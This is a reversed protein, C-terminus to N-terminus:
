PISRYLRLFTPRFGRRPWFRSSLLNTVRWDTVMARYGHEHAWAFVADTLAVGAGTGRAEPLTSAFSLYSAKDPRSVGGHDSSLELSCVQFLSVARGGVDAVFTGIEEDALDEKWWNLVDEESPPQLGSFVPSLNQHRQLSPGIVTAVDLEDPGPMRVTVGAPQEAAATDGVERVGEAQQAGFGVRFWADLLVGDAAPVQAYHRTRGEEVWRAAAAGYLDRVDEAEDTAHGAYEVWVNPGWAEDSKRIGLLYGVTRGDRLAVAGSADDSRWLADIEDRASAPEEYRAPLLPEAERHRRQRGALLVAAADLDDDAFPRIEPARM